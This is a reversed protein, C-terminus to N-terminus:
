QGFIENVLAEGEEISMEFVRHYEEGRIEGVWYPMMFQHGIGDVASLGFRVPGVPSDLTETELTAMIQDVDDVTGAKKLADTMYYLQVVCQFAMQPFEIGYQQEYEAAIEKVAEPLGEGYPGPYYHLHGEFNEWGQGEGYSTAWDAFATIGEWGMERLPQIVSIWACCFDPNKDAIKTALPYFETTEPPFYETELWELGFYKAAAEAAEALMHSTTTDDSAASATEVEPHAESVYKFLAAATPAAAPAPGFTHPKDPGFADLPIGSAFLIVGSEECLTQASMASDGGIQTVFNVGDEIILKTTSAVGGQSSWKNDEFILNWKYSEGAVTFEGIREAALEFGQQTPVGLVAGMIGSLPAGVGFKVEKVGEEEDEGGGCAVGAVLALSLVVIAVVSLWKKV